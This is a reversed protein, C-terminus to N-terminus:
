LLYSAVLIPSRRYIAPARVLRSTYLITPLPSGRGLLYFFLSLGLLIPRTSRALRPVERFYRLYLLILYIRPM